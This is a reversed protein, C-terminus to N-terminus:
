IMVQIIRRAYGNAEVLIYYTGPEPAYLKFNGASDTVDSSIPTGTHDNALLLYVRAGAIAAGNPDTVTDTYPYLSPTLLTNVGSEITDIATQASDLEAKIAAVAESSAGDTPLAAVASQV